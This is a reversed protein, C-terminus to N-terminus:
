HLLTKAGLVGPEAGAGGSSTSPCPDRRSPCTELGNDESSPCSRCSDALHATSLPAACLSTEGLLARACRHCSGLLTDGHLGPATPLVSCLGGQQMWGPVGPNFRGELLEPSPHRLLVQPSTEEGFSGAMGM